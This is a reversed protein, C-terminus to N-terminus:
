AGDTVDGDGCAKAFIKTLEVDNAIITALTKLHKLWSNPPRYKRWDLFVNVLLDPQRQEFIGVACLGCNKFL